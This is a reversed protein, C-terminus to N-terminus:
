HIGAPIDKESLAADYVSALTQSLSFEPEWKLEKKAKEYSGFLVPVESPRMRAQDVTVKVSLGSHAILKDLITQISVPNGSCLNFLGQGKQAALRYARVIDRVDSFDREATLNGVKLLPEAEGRAIRALQHAFSSTVFREDQGGGIHNFPRLLVPHVYGYRGYRRCVEEAMLKTLSYNNNPRPPNIETLPLEEPTVKGYIEASGAFVFVAGTQLIHCTRILNSTGSVNVKLAQMFDEECGPVFAMGALHYIVEPGTNDIVNMCADAATIDLERWELSGGNEVSLTHGERKMWNPQPGLGTAVVEDGCHLLHRVLYSGVFGNAGTILAKM